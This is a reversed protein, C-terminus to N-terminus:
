QRISETVTSYHCSEGKSISYFHFHCVTGQQRIKTYSWDRDTQGPKSEAVKNLKPLLAFCFTFNLIIFQGKRNWYSSAGTHLVWLFVTKWNPLTGQGWGGDLVNPIFQFVLQRIRWCWHQSRVVLSPPFLDIRLHMAIKPLMITCHNASDGRPLLTVPEFGPNLWSSQAHKPRYHLEGIGNAMCEKESVIEWQWRRISGISVDAARDALWMLGAAWRCVKIIM